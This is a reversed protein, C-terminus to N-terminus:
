RCPRRGRDPRRRRFRKLLPTEKVPIALPRRM